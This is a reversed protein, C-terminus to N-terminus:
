SDSMNKSNIDWTLSGYWSCCYTQLLSGRVLSPIKSFKNLMNVHSIFTATKLAVDESDSLKHSIFNGFYKVKKKWAVTTGNLKVGVKPPLGDGGIRICM